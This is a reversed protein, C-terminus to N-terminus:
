FLKEIKEITELFYIKNQEKPGAFMEPSSKLLSKLEEVDFLRVESLEEKNIRMDDITGDFKLLYVGIIERNILGLDEAKSFLMRKELFSVDQEDIKIGLEEEAERTLTQEYTDGSSVHGACGVDFKNPFFHKAPARKQLLIKRGVTIWLHVARHFEGKKHAESKLKVVGTENDNEDVIDVLEDEM